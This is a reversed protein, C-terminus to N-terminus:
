CFLFLSFFFSIDDVDLCLLLASVYVVTDRTLLSLFFYAFFLSVHRHSDDHRQSFQLGTYVQLCGVSQNVVRTGPLVVNNCIIRM